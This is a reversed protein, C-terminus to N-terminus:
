ESAVLNEFSPRLLDLVWPIGLVSPSRLQSIATLDVVVVRDEQVATLQQYIPNNEYAEQIEPSGFALVVLDADILHLTELSLSGQFNGEEEALEALGPTLVFGLEQFFQVAFDGQSYITAIAAPDYLYSLSFTKGEIGPYDSLISAIQAETDAVLQEAEAELGLATGALLSQEQWTDGYYANLWSTTPAIETLSAYIQDTNYYSGALILDPQLEVLVEFSGIDFPLLETQETDALEQLWPSIGDEQYPDAAIAVPTVGLGYATDIDGFGLAIVREPPAPIEITGLSHTIVIPFVPAEPTEEQAALPVITLSLLALLMLLGFARSFNLSPTRSLM